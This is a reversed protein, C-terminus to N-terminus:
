GLMADITIDQGRSTTSKNADNVPTSKIKASQKIREKLSLVKAEKVKTEVLKSLDYGKFRLYKIQLQQELTEKQSDLFEKSNGKSDVATSLYDFFASKDADPIKIDNLQGKIVVQEVNNWYAMQKAEENKVAQQYDLDRQKKNEADKAILAPIAKEVESDLTNSDKFLQILGDVRAKDVGAYSERIYKEKDAPSLTKIDITSYDITSKYTDITKGSLLHKTIEALEPVQNFFAERWEKGQQNVLDTHFEKHGAEDDTYIKTNGNEDVFEYGSEAHWKNVITNEIALEVKTKVIKGEADIQNGEADTIITDEELSDKLLTDFPAVVEGKDNLINGSEDFSTGKYKALLDTRISKNDADLTSEDIFSNLLAKFNNSNEENIVNTDQTSVPDVVKAPPNTVVSPTAPPTTPPTTSQRNSNEGTNLINDLNIETNDQM